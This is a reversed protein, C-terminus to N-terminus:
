LVDSKNGDLVGAYSRRSGGLRCGYVILFSVRIDLVMVGDEVVLVAAELWRM